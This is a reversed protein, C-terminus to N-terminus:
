GLDRLEAGRSIADGVVRGGAAALQKEGGAGADEGRREVERAVGNQRDGLVCGHEARRAALVVAQHLYTFGNACKFISTAFL